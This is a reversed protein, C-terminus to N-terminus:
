NPFFGMNQQSLFLNGRNCSFFFRPLRTMHAVTACIHALGTALRLDPSRTIGSPVQGCLLIRYLGDNNRQNFTALRQPLPIKDFKAAHTIVVIFYHM